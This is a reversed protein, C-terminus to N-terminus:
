LFYRWSHLSVRAKNMYIYIHRYIFLYIFIYIYIYTHIYIYIDHAYATYHCTMCTYVYMYIYVFMEYCSLYYMTFTTEYIIGRMCLRASTTYMMCCLLVFRMICLMYCVSDLCLIYYLVVYSSLLSTTRCEAMLRSGFSILRPRAVWDLDQFRDFSDLGCYQSFGVLFRM